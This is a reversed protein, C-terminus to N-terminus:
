PFHHLIFNSIGTTQKEKYCKRMENGFGVPYNNYMFDMYESYSNNFMIINMFANNNHQSEKISEWMTRMSDQNYLWNTPDPLGDCGYNKQCVAWLQESKDAMQELKTMTTKPIDSMLKPQAIPPFRVMWHKDPHYSFGCKVFLKASADNRCFGILKNKKMIKRLLNYAYNNRRYETMTYIYDLLVPNDFIHLPDFDIKHLLAVCIPNTKTENYTVVCFVPYSHNLWLQTFPDDRLEIFSTVLQKAKSGNEIILM